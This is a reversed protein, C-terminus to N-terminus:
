LLSFLLSITFFSHSEAQHILLSTFSLAYGKSLSIRLHTHLLESMASQHTSVVCSPSPFTLRIGSYKQSYKCTPRASLWPTRCPGPQSALSVPAQSRSVTSCQGQLTLSPKYSVMWAFSLGSTHSTSYQPMKRCVHSQSYTNKSWSSNDPLELPGSSILIFASRFRFYDLWLDLSLPSTDSVRRGGPEQHVTQSRQPESIETSMWCKEKGKQSVIHDQNLHWPCVNPLSLLGVSPISLGPRCM